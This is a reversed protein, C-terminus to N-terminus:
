RYGVEVTLFGVLAYPSLLLFRCSGQSVLRVWIEFDSFSFCISRCLKPAKPDERSFRISPGRCTCICSIEGKLHIHWKLHAHPFYLREKKKMSVVSLHARTQSRNFLSCYPSATPSWSHVLGYRWRSIEQLLWSADKKFTLPREEQFSSIQVLAMRQESSLQCFPQGTTFWIPGEIGKM